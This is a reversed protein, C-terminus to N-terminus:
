DLLGEKKLTSELDSIKDTLIKFKLQIEKKEGNNKLDDKINDITDLASDIEKQALEINNNM